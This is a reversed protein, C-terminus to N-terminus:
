KKAETGGVPDVILFEVRRNKEKGEETKNDAIPKTIGYGKGVLRAPEIGKAVLAVVVAKARLDSLALNRKADGESSAHGQVEVKKIQAHEKLTDAIETILGDSAPLIVDSNNGFQIKEDIEIHDGSVKVHKPAAVAVVPKPAAVAAQFTQDGSFNVSGGGCAMLSLAGVGLALTKVLFQM